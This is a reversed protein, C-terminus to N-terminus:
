VGFSKAAYGGMNKVSGDSNAKQIEYLKRHIAVLDYNEIVKEAQDKRLKFEDVLRKKLEPEKLDPRLAYSQRITWVLNAVKRSEKQAKYEVQLDTKQNIERLALKLVRTEFANFNPYEELGKAEDILGLTLKLERVPTKMVGLDKNRSLIQYIRKTHKGKLRTLETLGYTTFNGLRANFYVFPRIKSDLKFAVVGKGYLYEVSSFVPAQLLKGETHIELINQLMEKTCAEVKGYSNKADTYRQLTAIRVLYERDEKDDAGMQAIVMALLNQQLESMQYRAMTLENRQFIVNSEEM